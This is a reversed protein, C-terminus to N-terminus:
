YKEYCIYFVVTGATLDALNCGTATATATFGTAATCHLLGSSSDWSAGQTNYVSNLADSTLNMAGDDDLYADVAGGGIGVEISLDTLGTGAFQETLRMKLGKIRCKAPSTWIVKTDSVAAADFLTSTEWDETIAGVSVLACPYYTADSIAMTEGNGLTLSPVVWSSGTWTGKAVSANLTKNTLEQTAAIAALTDSATNPTTMLKTLGADQYFSAIVPATLTKLTLTQTNTTGVVAGTAGHTTTDAEHAAFAATHAAADQCHDYHVNSTIAKTDAADTGGATDDLNDGTNMLTNTSAGHVGTTAANHDYFADTTIGKTTTGNTGGSTNDLNSDVSM